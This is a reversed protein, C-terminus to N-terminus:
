SAPTGRPSGRFRPRRVAQRRRSFFGLRDRRKAPPYGWHADPRWTGAKADVFWSVDGNSDFFRTGAETKSFNALHPYNGFQAFSVYPRQRAADFVITRNFDDRVALDGADDLALVVGGPEPNDAHAQFYFRDALIPGFPGDGRGITKLPKLNAPDTATSSTSRAPPPRHSRWGTAASPWAWRSRSAPSRRASREMRARHSWSAGPRQRGLDAKAQPRRRPSTPAPVAISKDFTPKDLPAFWLKNGAPDAIYLTGDLEALGDPQLRELDVRRGSPKGDAWARPTGTASDLKSLIYHGSGGARLCYVHKGIALGVACPWEDDGPRPLVM